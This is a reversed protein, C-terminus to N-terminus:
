FISLLYDYFERIGDPPTIGTEGWKIENSRPPQKYILYYSMNGPHKFKLEGLELTGAKKFINKTTSKKLTKVERWDGKIGKSLFLQGNDLLIYEKMM